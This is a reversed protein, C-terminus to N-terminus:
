KKKKNEFSEGHVSVEYAYESVTPNRQYPGRSWTIRAGGSRSVWLHLFLLFFLVFFLFFSSPSHGKIYSRSSASGVPLPVPYPPNRLPTLAGRRDPDDGGGRAGRGGRAAGALNIYDIKTLYIGYKVWNNKYYIETITICDSRTPINKFFLYLIIILIIKRKWTFTINSIVGM